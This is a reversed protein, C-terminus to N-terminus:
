ITDKIYKRIGERLKEDSLYFLDNDKWGNTRAVNSLLQCLRMEPYRYWIDRVMALTHEIKQTDMLNEKPCSPNSGEVGREWLSHAVLSRWHGHKTQAVVRIRVSLVLKSPQLHVMAGIIALKSKKISENQQCHVM